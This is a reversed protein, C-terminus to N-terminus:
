MLHDVGVRPQLTRAVARSLFTSLDVGCAVGTGTVLVVRRGDGRDGPQRVERAAAGLGDLYGARRAAVAQLRRGRVAIETVAVGIALLLVTTEIDARRTISFREYPVTLFFDFWVAASAAALERAARHGAAAVGVVVLLLVLAADRIPFPRGFPILIATLALPVVIGALAARRDRSIAPVV